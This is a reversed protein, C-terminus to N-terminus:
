YRIPVSLSFWVMTSTLGRWNERRRSGSLRSPSRSLRSNPMPLLASIPYVLGGHTIPTTSNTFVSYPYIESDDGCNTWEGKECESRKEWYEFRLGIAIDQQGDCVPLNCPEGDYHEPKTQVPEEKHLREVERAIGTLATQHEIRHEEIRSDLTTIRNWIAGTKETLRQDLARLEERVSTQKRNM